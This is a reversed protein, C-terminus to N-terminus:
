AAALDRRLNQLVLEKHLEHLRHAYDKIRLGTGEDVGVTLRERDVLYHLDVIHKLLLNRCM